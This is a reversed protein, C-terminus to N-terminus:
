MVPCIFVWVTIVDIKWTKSMMMMMMMLKTMFEALESIISCNALDRCSEEQIM